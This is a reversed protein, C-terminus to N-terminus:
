RQPANPRARMGRITERLERIRTGAEQVTYDAPVQFLAPNPEDRRISTLTTTTTGRMPDINKVLVNLRLEPSFWRESTIQIPQVNGVTGAPITRVVRTGEVFLGEMNRSGLTETSVNAQRRAVAGRLREAREQVQGRPPEPANPRPAGRFARINPRVMKRAIKRAPDLVYSVGAVPDNIFIAQPTRTAASYQGIAPLAQERRTRGQGDRSVTTTTKREIRNGDSLTQVFESTVEATYPAGALTQGQLGAEFGLFTITDAPDPGVFPVPQEFFVPEGATAVGAVAGSSQAQDLSFAAISASAVPEAFATEAEPGYFFVADHLPELMVGMEPAFELDLPIEFPLDVLDGAVWEFREVHIGAQPAQSPAASPDQTTQGQPSQPSQAQAYALGFILICCTLIVLWKRNMIRRRFVDTM